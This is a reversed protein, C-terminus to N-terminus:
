ARPHVVTVAYPAYALVRRAISGVLWREFLTRGRHGVVIHDIGHGEAYAVLQEAPHEVKAEFRSKLGEVRPKM